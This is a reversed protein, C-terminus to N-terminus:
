FNKHQAKEKQPTCINRNWEERTINPAYKPSIYRYITQQIFCNRHLIGSPTFLGEVYLNSLLTNTFSM